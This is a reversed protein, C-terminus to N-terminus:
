SLLDVIIILQGKTDELLRKDLDTFTHEKNSPNEPLSWFINMNRLINVVMVGGGRKPIKPLLSKGIWTEGSLCLNEVELVYIGISSSDAIQLMKHRVVMVRVWYARGRPRWSPAGLWSIRRALYLCSCGRGTVVSWCIAVIIRNFGENVTGILCAVESSSM